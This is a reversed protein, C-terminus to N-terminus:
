QNQCFRITSDVSSDIKSDTLSDVEFQSSQGRSNSRDLHTVLTLLDAFGQSLKEVTTASMWFVHSYREQDFSDNAFRLVLQTKGIGHMGYIVCRAPRRRRPAM